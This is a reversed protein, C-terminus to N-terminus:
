ATQRGCPPLNELDVDVVIGIEALLFHASARATPPLFRLRNMGYCRRDLIVTGAANRQLQDGENALHIQVLATIARQVSPDVQGANLARCRDFDAPTM